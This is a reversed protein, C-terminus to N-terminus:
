TPTVRTGTFQYRAAYDNLFTAYRSAYISKLANAAEVASMGADRVFDSTEYAMTGNNLATREGATLVMGELSTIDPAPTTVINSGNVQIPTTIPFLFLFSVTDRYGPSGKRRELIVIEDAM